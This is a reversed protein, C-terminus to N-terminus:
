LKWIQQIFIGNWSGAGFAGSATLKTPAIEIWTGPNKEDHLLYKQRFHRRIRDSPNTVSVAWGELTIPNDPDPHTVMVSPQTRVNALHLDDDTTKIYYRGEFWTGRQPSCHPRGDLLVSMLWVTESSVLRRLVRRLADPIEGDMHPPISSDTPPIRQFWDGSSIRPRFSELGEPAWYMWAKHKNGIHTHVTVRERYYFHPHGEIKDMRELADPAVTLLDGQLQGEGPRAAPYAGLDYLVAGPLIASQARIIKDKIEPYFRSDSIQSNEHPPRLTGYVFVLETKM